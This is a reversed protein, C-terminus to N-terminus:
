SLSLARNPRSHRIRVAIGAGLAPTDVMLVVNGIKPQSRSEFGIMRAVVPREAM